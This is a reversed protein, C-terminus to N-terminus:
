AALDRDRARLHALVDEAGERAIRRLINAFEEADRGLLDDRSAAPLQSRMEAALDRLADQFAKSNQVEREMLGRLEAIPDGSAAETARPEIRALEIKDIWTKGVDAGSRRAEEALTDADCRL